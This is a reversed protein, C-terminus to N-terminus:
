ILPNIRPYSPKKIYRYTNWMYKMFGNGTGGFAYVDTQYDGVPITTTTSKPHSVWYDTYDFFAPHNFATMTGLTSELMRMALAQGAYNASVLYRYDGSCAGWADEPFSLGDIPRCMNNSCSTPAYPTQSSLCEESGFMPNGLSNYYTYGQESNNHALPFSTTYRQVDLLASSNLMKGAFIVPWIHGGGYGGSSIWAFDNAIIKAYDDIGIQILKNIYSIRNPTNLMMMMSVQSVFSIEAYPPYSQGAYDNSPMWNEEGFTKGGYNLTPMNAKGSLNLATGPAPYSPILSYNVAASDFFTKTGAVFPPRFSTASPASNVITLVAANRVFSRPVGTGTYAPDTITSILSKVGSGITTPFSVRLSDVYPTNYVIGSHYGQNYGGVAPDLMSGHDAGTWAPTKSIITVPAVVWWDGNVFQGCGVSTSFNWTIGNQSISTCNAAFSTGTFLICFMFVLAKNNVLIIKNM